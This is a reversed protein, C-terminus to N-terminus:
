KNAGDNAIVEKGALLALIALASYVIFGTNFEPYGNAMLMGSAITVWFITSMWLGIWRVRRNRIVIGVIKTFACFLAIFGVFWEGPVVAALQDWSGSTSFLDDNTLLVLGWGLSIYSLVVEVVTKERM